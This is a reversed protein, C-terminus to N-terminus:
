RCNHNGLLNGVGMQQMFAGAVNSMSSNDTRIMVNSIVIYQEKRVKSYLFALAVCCVISIVFIYWNKTISKAIELLNITENNASNNHDM